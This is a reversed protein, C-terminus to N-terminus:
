EAGALAAHLTEAAFDACYRRSEPLGGLLDLIAGATLLRAEEVSRGALWETLASGAAITGACGIARFRAAEIRGEAVRLSFELMADGRLRRARATAEPLHGLNRPHRYHDQVFPNYM